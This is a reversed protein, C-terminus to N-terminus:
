VETTIYVHAARGRRTLRMVGSYAVYGWRRLDTLRSSVTQHVLNLSQECEDCTAGAQNYKGIYRLIRRENESLQFRSPITKTMVIPEDPQKVALEM